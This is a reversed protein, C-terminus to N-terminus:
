EPGSGDKDGLLELAYDLNLATELNEFELGMTVLAIAIAPRMGVIVSRTGMVLAERAINNLIKAIYSDMIPVASIDIILGCSGSKQIKVLVDEQLQIAERDHLSGQISVILKGGMRVIPVRSETTEMIKETM